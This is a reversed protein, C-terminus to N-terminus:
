FDLALPGDKCNTMLMWILGSLWDVTRTIVSRPVPVVDSQVGCFPILSLSEGTKTYRLKFGRFTVSKDSHFVLQLDDGNVPVVMVEPRRPGCLRTLRNNYM